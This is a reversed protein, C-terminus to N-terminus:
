TSITGSEGEIMDLICHNKDSLDSLADFGAMWLTDTRVEYCHIHEELAETFFRKLTTGRSTALAKIRRFLVDPLEVTTKM